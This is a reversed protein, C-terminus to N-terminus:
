AAACITNIGYERSFTRDVKFSITNGGFTYSDFAAGVKIYDNAAKSWLYTGITKYKALFDGLVNQVLFWM